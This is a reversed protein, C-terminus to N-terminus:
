RQRRSQVGSMARLISDEVVIRVQVQKLQLSRRFMINRDVVSSDMTPPAIATTDGIEGVWCDAGEVCISVHGVLKSPISGGLHVPSPRLWHCSGFIVTKGYIRELALESV